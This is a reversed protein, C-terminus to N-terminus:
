NLIVKVTLAIRIDQPFIRKKDDTDIPFGYSFGYMNFFLPNEDPNIHIEGNEDTALKKIKM